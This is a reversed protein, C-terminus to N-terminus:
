IIQSVVNKIEDYIGRYEGIKILRILCIVKEDIIKIIALTARIPRSKHHHIM